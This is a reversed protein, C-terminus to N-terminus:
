WFMKTEPSILRVLAEFYFYDGYTAIGNSSSHPMSGTVYHILGDEDPSRNECHDILANLMRHAANIYIAKEKSNEPLHRSMELLGCVAIASASSDRPEFSGDTFAFDWFPVMDSPLNDLFYYSVAKHIDLIEEDNTYSYAVPFGYVLWAHGRTWCSDNSFGQLTCGYLPEKTAPDFQYHHYSSGDGRILYKATTRYHGIAAERYREDGTEGYAWFLLPINMMSDVLTRFDVFKYKSSGDGTRIIFHQEWCYHELLIEAAKLAAKRAASDGSIKYAAICSPTFKFGTDHDDLDIRKEVAEIFLPINNEAATRYASDKTYLYALWYIGTWLGSVWSVKKGPVYRNHSWGSEHAQNWGSIVEPLSDSFRDLSSHLRNLANKMALQLKEEPIRFSERYFDAKTLQSEKNYM